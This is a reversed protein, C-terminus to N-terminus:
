PALLKVVAVGAYTGFATGLSGTLIAPLVLDPRGLSRALALASTGGGINAQSAVAAVDLDLRFILAAGFLILAHVAILVGVFAMLALGLGGSAVLARGDCLAGITALFLYVGFMGLLRSGRLRAVAPIQALLLALTTLILIGPVAPLTRELTRSLWVAGSGLVVLVGLDVPHVRETDDAVGDDPAVAGAARGRRALLRPLAITAAMWLVTAGSDVANASALLVGDNVQYQTAIAMFNASGGIYTATFMGALAADHAPAGAGGLLLTALLAGALTGAAGLAFLGIAPAGARLVQRLEVRILLWFIALWAGDSFLFAYVPHDGASTPILGLNAVVATVIIVILSTGLHRLLPRRALLEAAVVCAALVAVVFFPDSM